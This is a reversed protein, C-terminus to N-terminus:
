STEFGWYLHNNILKKVLEPSVERSNQSVISADLYGYSLWKDIYEPSDYDWKPNFGEDYPIDYYPLYEFSENKVQNILISDGGCNVTQLSIKMGDYVVKNDNLHINAIYIIYSTTEVGGFYLFKNAYKKNMKQIIHSQESKIINLGKNCLDLIVNFWATRFETQHPVIENGYTIKNIEKICTNQRSDITEFNYLMECHTKILNFAYEPDQIILTNERIKDKKSNYDWVYQNISSIIDQLQEM